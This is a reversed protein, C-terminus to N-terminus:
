QQNACYLQTHPQMHLTTARFLNQKELCVLAALYWTVKASTVTFDPMPMWSVTAFTVEAQPVAAFVALVSDLNFHASMLM